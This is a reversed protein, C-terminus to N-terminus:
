RACPNDTLVLHPLDTFREIVFDAEPDHGFGYACWIMGAGAQRASMGDTITDGVYYPHQLHYRDILLRINEAKSLGTGGHSLAAEFYPQLGNIAIFNQLGYSGCNSVMFMRVHGLLKRLTETVGPYLHGTLTPMMVRENHDLVKLFGEKDAVNPILISIIEELPKGMTSMLRARTIPEEDLGLESFTDNWVKVYSDVADWLTGDMDFILSDCNM